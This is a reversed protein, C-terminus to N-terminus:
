RKNRIGPIRLYYLLLNSSSPLRYTLYSLFASQAVGRRGPLFSLVAISSVVSGPETLALQSYEAFRVRKASSNEMQADSKRKM